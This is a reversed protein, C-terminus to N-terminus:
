GTGGRFPRFGKPPPNKAHFKRLQGTRAAELEREAYEIYERQAGKKLRIPAVWPSHIGGMIGADQSNGTADIPKHTAGTLGLRRVAM